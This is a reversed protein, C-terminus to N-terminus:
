KTGSTSGNWDKKRKAWVLKMTESIKQKSEASQTKGTLTQSIKSKTEESVEHGKRATIFKQKHEESWPKGTPPHGMLSKSIALRHEKTQPGRKTGTQIRSINLRMESTRVKGTLIKSIKLKTAETHPKSPRSKLKEVIRAIVEPTMRGGTGGMTQNYGFSRLHSALFWIFFIESKNLSDKDPCRCLEEIVFNKEGHKRIAHSFITNYGSRAWSFHNVLRDKLLYITQGVYYKGNVKNTILYISGYWKNM